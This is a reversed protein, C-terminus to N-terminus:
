GPAPQVFWMFYWETDRESEPRRIIRVANAGDVLFEKPVRVSTEGWREDPRATTILPSDVARGNVEVAYAAAGSHDHRGIVILDRASQVNHVQWAASGYVRRGDDELQVAELPPAYHLLKTHWSSEYPSDRPQRVEFAHATESAEVGWDLTDVIPASGLHERDSFFRTRDAIKAPDFFTLHADDRMAALLAPNLVTFDIYRGDPLRASVQERGDQPPTAVAHPYLSPDAWEVVVDVGRARIADYNQLWHEHGMRGREATNVPSHAIEPDTLGHLDLCPRDCLYPILGASTTAIHATAPVVQACLHGAARWDFRGPDTYRRLLPITEQDPMGLAQAWPLAVRTLGALVAAALAGTVCALWRQRAAPLRRAAALRQGIVAAAVVVAPYFVGSVPTLFRWEMFDGGLRVLYFSTAGSVLLAAWLFRRVMGPPAGAAGILAVVAFPTLGYVAAYQRLYLWGRRYYTLYAVKAYYTNPFFAGYYWVRWAQYPLWVLLVPLAPNLLTRPTRVLWRGDFVAVVLALAAFVVVGDPRTMMLAVGCASMVPLAWRHRRPDFAVCTVAAITLFTVLPTEMGSFFWMNFSWHLALPLLALPGAWVGESWLAIALVLLVAYSGSWLILSAVHMFFLPDDAGAALPLASLMTWLFNTYGEVPEGINYVLGNGRVLNRAYRFSVYADDQVWRQAWLFPVQEALCAIVLAAEGVLLVRARVSTAGDRQM